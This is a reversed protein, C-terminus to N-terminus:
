PQEGIIQSLYLFSGIWPGSNQTRKRWTELQPRVDTRIWGRQRADEALYLASGLQPLGDIWAAWAAPSSWRQRTTPGLPLAAGRETLGGFAAGNRVMAVAQSWRALAALTPDFERIGARRALWLAPVVRGYAFFASTVFPPPGKGMGQAWPEESQVGPLVMGLDRRADAITAAYRAMGLAQARLKGEFYRRPLLWTPTQTPTLQYAMTFAAIADGTGRDQLSNLPGIASRGTEFEVNTANMQDTILYMADCTAAYPVGRGNYHHAVDYSFVPGGPLNDPVILPLYRQGMETANPFFSVPQLRTVDIPSHSASSWASWQPMWGAWEASARVSPWAARLWREDKIWAAYVTQAYWGHLWARSSIYSGGQGSRVGDFWSSSSKPYREGAAESGDREPMPLPGPSTSGWAGLSLKPDPLLFVGARTAARLREWDPALPQSQWVRGFQGPYLTRTLPKGNIRLTLTVPTLRAPDAPNWLRDGPRRTHLHLDRQAILSVSGAQDLRYFQISGVRALVTLTAPMNCRPDNLAGPLPRPAVLLDIDRGGISATATFSQALTSTALTLLFGVTIWFPLRV